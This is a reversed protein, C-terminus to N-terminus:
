HLIAYTKCIKVSFNRIPVFTYFLSNSAEKKRDIKNFDIITPHHIIKEKTGYSICPGGRYPCEHKTIRLKIHYHLTDGCRYSNFYNM